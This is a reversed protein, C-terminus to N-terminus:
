MEQIDILKKHQDFFGIALPILTDKMWFTVSQEKDFVFLMGNSDALKTRNMLGQERRDENDAVEVTLLHGDVKIKIKAFDVEAAVYCPALSVLILFISLLKAM